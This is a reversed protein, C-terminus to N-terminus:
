ILNNKNKEEMKKLKIHKSEGLSYKSYPKGEGAVYESKLLGINVFKNLWKQWTTKSAVPRKSAIESVKFGDNELLYIRCFDLAKKERHSLGFFNENDLVKSQYLDRVVNFDEVTAIINKNNDKERQFQYLATHSQILALFRSFDRKVRQLDIHFESSIEDAFPIVVNENKLGKLAATIEKNYSTNNSNKHKSAQFNIVNKIQELSEDVNVVIFRNSMEDNLDVNATTTFITPKGKISIIQSKNDRVSATKELGDSIFVKFTESSMLGRQADEVYLLRNNWTFSEKDSHLYALAQATIKSFMDIRGTLSFLKCVSKTIHSKGSSSQSSKMINPTQELNNVYISCLAIIDFKVSEVDGVVKKSVEKSLIELLNNENLISLDGMYNKELHDKLSDYDCFVKCGFCYATNTNPYFTFSPSTEEHFPCLSKNNVIEMNHDIALEIIEKSKRKQTEKSYNLDEMENMLNENENQLIRKIGYKKGEAAIKWHPQNEAAILHKGALSYDAKDPNGSYKKIFEKKYQKRQKETLDLLGQIKRIHIHPSKGGHDWIEFAYKEDLKKITKETYELGEERTCNDHEIVIEDNRIKRLRPDQNKWAKEFNM